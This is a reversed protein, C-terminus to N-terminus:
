GTKCKGAFKYRCEKSWSYSELDRIKEQILRLMKSTEENTSSFLIKSKQQKERQILTMNNVKQFNYKAFPIALTLEM